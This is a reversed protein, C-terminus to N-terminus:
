ARKTYSPKAKNVRHREDAEDLLEEVRNAIENDVIGEVTTITKKVLRIDDPTHKIPLRVGVTIKAYNGDGLNKTLSKEIYVDANSEAM